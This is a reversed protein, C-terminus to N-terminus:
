PEPTVKFVGLSGQVGGCAGALDAERETFAEASAQWTLRDSWICGRLRMALDAEREM